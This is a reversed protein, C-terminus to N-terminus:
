KKSLSHVHFEPSFIFATVGEGWFTICFSCSFHIFLYMHLSSYVTYHFCFVSTVIVFSVFVFFLFYSYLFILFYSFLFFLVTSFIPSFLFYSFSSFLLLFFILSSLFYSFPYFLFHSFLLFSFIFSPFPFTKRKEEM